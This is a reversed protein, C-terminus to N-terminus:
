YTRRREREICAAISKRALSVVDDDKGEHYGDRGARDCADQTMLQLERVTGRYLIQCHVAEYGTDPKSKEEYDVIDMLNGSGIWRIMDEVATGDALIARAASLDSLHYVLLRRGEDIRYSGESGALIDSAAKRDICGKTLAKALTSGGRKIRTKLSLLRGPRVNDYTAGAIGCHGPRHHYSPMFDRLFVHAFEELGDYDLLLVDETERVLRSVDAHPDKWCIDRVQELIRVLQSSRTSSRSFDVRVSYTLLDEVTPRQIAPVAGQGASVDRKEM